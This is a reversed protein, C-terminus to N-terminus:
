VDGAKLFSDHPARVIPRDIVLSAVDPDSDPDSDTPPNVPTTETTPETTDERGFQVDQPTATGGHEELLRNALPNYSATLQRLARDVKPTNPTMAPLPEGREMRTHRPSLRTQSPTLVPPMEDDSAPDDPDPHTDVELNPFAGVADAPQVGDPTTATYEAMEDEEDIPLMTREDERLSMYDGYMRNMWLIDRSKLISNTKLNLMRFVDNPTNEPYGVFM